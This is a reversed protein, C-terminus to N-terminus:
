TQSFGFAVMFFFLLCQLIAAGESVRFDSFHGVQGEQRGQRGEQGKEEHSAGETARRIVPAM